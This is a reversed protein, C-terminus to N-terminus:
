GIGSSFSHTITGGVSAISIALGDIVEEKYFCGSSAIKELCRGVFVVVVATSGVFFSDFFFIVLM